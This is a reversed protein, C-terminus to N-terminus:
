SYKSESSDSKPLYMRVTTGVGVQSDFQIKGGSKEVVSKAQYVGLGYGSSEGSKGFSFGIEGVRSLAEEPIGKGNDAITVCVFKDEESLSVNIRGNDKNVAEVANNILNSMCRDLDTVDVRALCSGGFQDDFRLDVKPFVEYEVKKEAVLTRASQKLDIAPNLLAPQDIEFRKKLLTDAIKSIRTAATKIMERKEEPVDKLSAAVINLASVPSRIDHAVQSAIKSIAEARGFQASRLQLDKFAAAMNNAFHWASSFTLPNPYPLSAAEFLNKFSQLLNRNSKSFILAATFLIAFYLLAVISLYSWPVLQPRCFNVDYEFYKESACVKFDSMGTSSIAFSENRIVDQFNISWEQNGFNAQESLERFRKEKILQSNTKLLLSLEYQVLQKNQQRNLGVLVILSLLFLFSSVVMLSRFVKEPNANVSISTAV